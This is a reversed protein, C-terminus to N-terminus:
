NFGNQVSVFASNVKSGISLTTALIVISVGVAILAYEISTAASEDKVFTRITRLLQGRGCGLRHIREKAHRDQTQGM